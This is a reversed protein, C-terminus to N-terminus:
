DLRQDPRVYVTADQEDEWVEINNKSTHNDHRVEITYGGLQPLKFTVASRETVKNTYSDGFIKISDVKQYHEDADRIAVNFYYVQEDSGM